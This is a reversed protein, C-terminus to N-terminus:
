REEPRQPDGFHQVFLVCAQNCGRLWQDRINFVEENTHTDENNFVFSVFTSYFTGVVELFFRFSIPLKM